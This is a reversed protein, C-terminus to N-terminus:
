FTWHRSLMGKAVLSIKLM